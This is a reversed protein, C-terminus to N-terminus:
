SRCRPRHADHIRQRAAADPVHALRARERDLDGQAESLARAHRERALQHSAGHQLLHLGACPRRHLPQVTGHHPRRGVHLRQPVLAAPGAGRDRCLDQCLRQRLRRSLAARHHLLRRRGEQRRIGRGHSLMRHARQLPSLADLAHRPEQPLIEEVLWRNYARALAVEVDIRPALGLALMPTPFLCTMDVGLADM